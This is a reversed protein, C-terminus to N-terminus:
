YARVHVRAYTPGDHARLHEYGARRASDATDRVSTKAVEFGSGRIFAEFRRANRESAFDVFGACRNENTVEIRLIGSLGLSRVIAPFEDAFLTDTKM